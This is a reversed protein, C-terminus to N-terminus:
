CRAAPSALLARGIEQIDAVGPDEHALNALWHAPLGAYGCLAGALAGTLACITDVDGGLSVACLISREFSPANRVFAWLAAPVADSALVGNGLVAAVTASAANQSVLSRLTALKADSWGGIGYSAIRALFDMPSFASADCQLSTAVAVAQLVAGTVADEHAHTIRSSLTACDILTRTDNWYRCAIPSVRAAAGNGASGEGWTSFACQSWHTGGLYAAICRRMGRGYGRAPDFSGALKAFLLEPELERRYALSRAVALTMQTDDTYRWPRPHSARHLAEKDVAGISAGEFPAGFADGLATGLLVGFTRDQLDLM